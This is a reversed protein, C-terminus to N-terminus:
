ASGSTPFLGCAFGTSPYPGRTPATGSTAQRLGPYYGTCPYRTSESGMAPVGYILRCGSLGAWDPQAEANLLDTASTQQTSPCVVLNLAKKRPFSVSHLEQRTRVRDPWRAVGSNETGAAVGESFGNGTLHPPVPM